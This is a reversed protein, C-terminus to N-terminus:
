SPATFGAGPKQCQKTYDPLPPPQGGRRCSSKCSVNWAIALQTCCSRNYGAAACAAFMNNSSTDCRVLCANGLSLEDIGILAM